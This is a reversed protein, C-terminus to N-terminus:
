SYIVLRKQKRIRRHWNNNEKNHRILKRLVANTFGKTKKNTVKNALRVCSDVAAYDPVKSDFLIEYFGIRLITLVKKNLYKIKKGSIFTIM